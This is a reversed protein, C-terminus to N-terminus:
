APTGRLVPVGVSSDIASVVGEFAADVVESLRDLIFLMSLKGDNIRYRLRATVEVATEDGDFVKLALTFSDPITIQGDRGATADIQEVYNLAREGSKLISASRFAVKTTAQFTQALEMLDAATPEIVDPRHDELFEAFQVQTMPSASRNAWAMFSDTHRLQLVERHDAWDTDGHGSGNANLVGVVTLARRDAYVESFRNIAHKEWCALFSPVDSFTVTGKKRRPRERWRDGTLDIEHLKGDRSTIVHYLGLELSESGSAADALSSIAEVASADIM